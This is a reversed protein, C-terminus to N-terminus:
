WCSEGYEFLLQYAKAGELERWFRDEEDLLFADPPVMTLFYAPAGASVTVRHPGKLLRVRDGTVPEGDITLDFPREPTDLGHPVQSLRLPAPFVFYDGDRIVDIDLVLDDGRSRPSHFGLAFLSGDVRVYHRLFYSHVNEPLDLLRYDILWLLAQSRRYDDVLQESFYKAFMTRHARGHQYFYSGHRRFLAGGSNDIVADDPTSFREIKALLALQHANSTTGSVFGLQDPLVALPIVCLAPWGIRKAVLAFGRASCLGVLFCLLVYNYPYQAKILVGGVLAVAVAVGWFIRDGAPALAFYIFAFLAIATTTVPVQCFYPLAYERWSVAPYFVEHSLAEFVTIDLARGLLGLQAGVALLLLITASAGLCFAKPDVVFAEGGLASRFKGAGGPGVRRFGDFSLWLAVSGGALVVMKQTMALSLAFLVGCLPALWRRSTGEVANARNVELLAMCALFLFAGFNDARYDVASMLGFGVSPPILVALLAAPPDRTARYTAWGLLLSAALIYVFSILRLRLARDPFSGDGSVFPAHLVYSLPFHHEYFDLYPVDGQSVLWTAHGYQYEDVTFFRRQGFAYVNYLVALASAALVATVFVQVSRPHM